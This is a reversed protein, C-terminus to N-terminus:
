PPRTSKARRSTATPQSSARAAADCNTFDYDFATAPDTDTSQRAPRAGRGLLAASSCSCQRAPNPEKEYEQPGGYLYTRPNWPYVRFPGPWTFSHLRPKLGIFKARAIPQLRMIHGAARCRMPRNPTQYPLTQFSQM